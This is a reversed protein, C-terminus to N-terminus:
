VMSEIKQDKLVDNGCINSKVILKVHTHSYTQNYRNKHTEEHTYLITAFQNSAKSVVLVFAAKFVCISLCHLTVLHRMKVDM